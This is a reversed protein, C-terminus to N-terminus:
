ADEGGVIEWDASLIDSHSVTWPVLNGKCTKIYIYPLSMKSFEDPKQLAIYTSLNNWGKRRVKKGEQMLRIARAFPFSVIELEENM